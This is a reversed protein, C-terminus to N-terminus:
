IGGVSREPRPCLFKVESHVTCLKRGRMHKIVSKAFKIGYDFARIFHEGGLAPLNGQLQYQGQWTTDVLEWRPNNTWVIDQAAGQNSDAPFDLKSGSPDRVSAENSLINAMDTVSSYFSFIVLPAVTVPHVGTM